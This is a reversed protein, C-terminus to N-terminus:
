QFIIPRIHCKCSLDPWIKTTLASTLDQTKWINLSYECIASNRIESYKFFRDDGDLFFVLQHHM